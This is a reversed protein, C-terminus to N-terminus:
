RSGPQHDGFARLREVYSPPLNHMQAGRVVSGLFRKSPAKYGTPVAIYVLCEVARGEHTVTIAGRVYAGIGIGEYVDLTDIHAETLDWLVGWVEDGPAREIHPVGGGRKPSDRTFTLRWDALRAAGLSVGGPCRQAMQVPDMNSGYAFYTHIRKGWVM